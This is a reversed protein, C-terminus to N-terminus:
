TVLSVKNLPVGAVLASLADILEDKPVIIFTNCFPTLTNGVNVCFVAPLKLLVAVNCYTDDDKPPLEVLTANKDCDNLITVLIM